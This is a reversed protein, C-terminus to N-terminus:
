CIEGHLNLETFGNLIVEASTSFEVSYNGRDGSTLGTLQLSGTSTDLSIRDEYGPETVNLASTTLNTLIIIDSGNVTWAIKMYSDDTSDLITNFTVNGGILADTSDSLM